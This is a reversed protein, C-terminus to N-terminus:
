GCGRSRTRAGPPPRQGLGEVDSPGTLLGSRCPHCSASLCGPDHAPTIQPRAPVAPRLSSIWMAARPVQVHVPEREIQLPWARARWDEADMADRRDVEKGSRAETRAGGRRSNVGVSISWRRGTRVPGRRVCFIIRCTVGCYYRAGPPSRSAGETTSRLGLLKCGVSVSHTRCLDAPHIGYANLLHQDEKRRTRPCRERVAPYWSAAQKSVLLHRVSAQQM